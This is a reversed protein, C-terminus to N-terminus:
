SYSFFVILTIISAEINKHIELMFFKFVKYLGTFDTIPYLWCTFYMTFLIQPCIFLDDIKCYTEGLSLQFGHIPKMIKKRIFKTIPILQQSIYFFFFLRCASRADEWTLDQEIIAYCLGVFLIRDNPGNIPDGSFSQPHGTKGKMKKSKLYDDLSSFPM